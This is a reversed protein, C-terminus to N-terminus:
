YSYSSSFKHCTPIKTLGKFFCSMWQSNNCTVKVICSKAFKGEELDQVFSQILDIIKQTINALLEEPIQKTFSVDFKIQSYKKRNQEKCIEEMMEKLCDRRDEKLWDFSNVDFAFSVQKWNM